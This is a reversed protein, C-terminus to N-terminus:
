VCKDMKWWLSRETEKYVTMGIKQLVRQSSLNSKVTDAVVSLVDPREFVWAVCRRLAETMYGNKQYETQIMYGVQVTGNEDPSIQCCFGGIIVNGEKLIILVSQWDIYWQDTTKSRIVDELSSRMASKIERDIQEGLIMSAMQLGLRKEIMQHEDPDISDFNLPILRLRETEMESLNPM